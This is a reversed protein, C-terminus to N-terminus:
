VSWLRWHVIHQIQFWCLQTAWFDEKWSCKISPINSSFLCTGGVIEWINQLILLSACVTLWSGGHTQLCAGALTPKSRSLWGILVQDIREWKLAWSSQVPNCPKSWLFFFVYLPSFRVRDLKFFFNNIFKTKSLYHCMSNLFVSSIIYQLSHTQSFNTFSRVSCTPEWTRKKWWAWMDMLCHNQVTRRKSFFKSWYGICCLLSDLNVCVCVCVSHWVCQFKLTEDLACLYESYFGSFDQLAQGVRMKKSQPGTWLFMQYTDSKSRSLSDAWLNCWTRWVYSAQLMLLMMRLVLLNV